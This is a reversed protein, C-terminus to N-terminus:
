RPAGAAGEVPKGRVGSTLAAQSLAELARPLLLLLCGVFQPLQTTFLGRVTKQPRPLGIALSAIGDIMTVQSGLAQRVTPARRARAAGARPTGRPGRQQAATRESGLADFPPM